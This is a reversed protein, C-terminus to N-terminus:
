SLRGTLNLIHQVVGSEQNYAEEILFSNDQIGKAPRPDEEQAFLSFGSGISFLIVLARCVHLRWQPFSLSVLVRFAPPLPM